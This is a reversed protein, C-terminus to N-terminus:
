KNLIELIREISKSEKNKYNTSILDDTAHGSMITVDSSDIGGVRFTNDINM